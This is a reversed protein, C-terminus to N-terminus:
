APPPPQLPRIMALREAGLKDDLSEALPLLRSADVTLGADIRFLQPDGPRAKAAPHQRPRPADLVYAFLRLQLGGEPAREVQAVLWRRGGDHRSHTDFDPWWPAHAEDLPLQQQLLRLVASPLAPAQPDTALSLRRMQRYDNGPGPEVTWTDRELTTEVFGLNALVGGLQASWRTAADPRHGNDDAPESARAEQEAVLTALLLCRAVLSREIVPVGPAFVLWQAGAALALPQGERWARPDVPFAAADPGPGIDLGKLAALLAAEDGVSLAQLHALAPPVRRGQLLVPIIRFAAGDLRQRALLRATERQAQTSAEWGKGVLVIAARAQDIAADIRAIWDDGASVERLDQWADLGVAELRRALHEAQVADARAYSIFVTPRAPKPAPQAAARLRERVAEELLQPTAFLQPSYYWRGQGPGVAVTATGDRDVRADVPQAQRHGIVRQVLRQRQRTDADDLVLVLARRSFVLWTQQTGTAFLLMRDVPLDGGALRGSLRVADVVAAGDLFAFPPQAPAAADAAAAQASGVPPSTPGSPEPSAAAGASGPRQAAPEDTGVAAPSAAAAGRLISRSVEAFPM